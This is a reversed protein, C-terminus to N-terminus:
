NQSVFLPRASWNGDEQQAFMRPSFEPHMAIVQRPLRMDFRWPEETSSAPLRARLEDYLEAEGPRTAFVRDYFDKNNM